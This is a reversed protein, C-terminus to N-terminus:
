PAADSARPATPKSRYTVAGPEGPATSEGDTASSAGTLADLLEAAADPHLEVKVTSALFLRAKAPVERAVAVDIEGRQDAISHESRTSVISKMSPVLIRLKRLVGDSGLPERRDAECAEELHHELVAERM